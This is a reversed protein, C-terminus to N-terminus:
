ADAASAEPAESLAVQGTLELEDLLRAILGSRRWQLWKLYCTQSPPFTAPLRHWKENRTMIWLIANVIERPPRSPRGSRKKPEQQFLHSIRAWADDSLPLDLM